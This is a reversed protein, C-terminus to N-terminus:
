GEYNDALYRALTASYTSLLERGEEDAELISSMATLAERQRESLEMHRINHGRFFIEGRNRDFHISSVEQDLIFTYTFRDKHVALVSDPLRKRGRQLPRSQGGMMKILDLSSPHTSSDEQEAEIVVRDEREKM